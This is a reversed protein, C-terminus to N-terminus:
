RPGSVCNKQIHGAEGYLGPWFPLAQSVAPYQPVIIKYIGQRILYHDFCASRRPLGTGFRLQGGLFNSGSQSLKWWCTRPHVIRRLTSLAPDFPGPPVCSYYLLWGSPTRSRTQFISETLHADCNTSSKPWFGVCLPSHYQIQDLNCAFTLTYNVAAAPLFSKEFVSWSIIFFSETYPPCRRPRFHGPSDDDAFLCSGTGGDGGLVVM